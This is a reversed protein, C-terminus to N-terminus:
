HETSSILTKERFLGNTAPENARVPTSHVAGTVNLHAQAEESGTNVSNSQVGNVPTCSSSVIPNFSDAQLLPQLRKMAENMIKAERVTEYNSRSKNRFTVFTEMTAICGDCLSFTEDAEPTLHIGIMNDIISLLDPRGLPFVAHVNAGGFCFHCYSEENLSPVLLNSHMASLKSGELCGGL